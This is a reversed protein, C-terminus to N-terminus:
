YSEVMKAIAKNWFDSWMKNTYPVITCFQRKNRRFMKLWTKMDYKERLMHWKVAAWDIRMANFASEDWGIAETIDKLEHYVALGREQDEKTINITGESLEKQHKSGFMMATVCGYKPTFDGNRNRNKIFVDPNITAFDAIIQYSPNNQEHAHIRDYITWGKRGNNIRTIFELIEDESEFNRFEVKLKKNAFDPNQTLRLYALVTHQGDIIYGRHADVIVAPWNDFDVLMNRYLRSVHSDNPKRNRNYFKLESEVQNRTLRVTQNKKM